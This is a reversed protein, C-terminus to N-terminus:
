ISRLRQLKVLETDERQFPQVHISFLHLVALGVFKLKKKMLYCGPLCFHAFHRGKLAYSKKAKKKM